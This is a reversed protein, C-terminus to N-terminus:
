QKKYILECDIMVIANLENNKNNFHLLLKAAADSQFSVFLFQKKHNHKM